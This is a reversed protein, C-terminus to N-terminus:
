KWVEFDSSPPCTLRENDHDSYNLIFGQATSSSGLITCYHVVESSSLSSFVPKNLSDIRFSAVVQPLEFHDSFNGFLVASM